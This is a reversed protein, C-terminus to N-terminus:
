QHSNIEVTELFDSCNQGDFLNEDEDMWVGADHYQQNMYKAILDLTAM